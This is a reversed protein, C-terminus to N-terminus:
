EIYRVLVYYLSARPLTRDWEERLLGYKIEDELQNSKFSGKRVIGDKKM